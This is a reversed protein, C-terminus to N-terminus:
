PAEEYFINFPVTCPLTAPTTTFRVLSAQWNVVFPVFEKWIGGVNTPLMTSLPIDQVRETSNEKLTLTAGLADAASIVAVQDPTAALMAINYFEIGTIRKDSLEPIDPFRVSSGAVTGTPVNLWVLKSAILPKMTPKPQTPLSAARVLYARAAGM